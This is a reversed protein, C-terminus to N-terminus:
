LPLETRGALHRRRVDFVKVLGAGCIALVRDILAASVFPRAGDHILVVPPAAAALSELGLRASDQRSAGGAIEPALDLGVAAAAYHARDEPDIVGHIAGIRPHRLYTELSHRLVAKGWLPAYQKPLAAGFSLGRGAALVLVAAGTM